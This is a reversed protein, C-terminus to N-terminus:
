RRQFRSAPGPQPSLPRRLGACVLPQKDRGFATHLRGLILRDPRAARDAKLAADLYVVIDQESLPPSFLFGQLETCASHRLFRRQEDTEVGEATVAIGLRCCLSAVAEIIAESDGAKGIQDVFSRDIKIKDVHLKQLHSLSSYGTGFDDLVIGVGAARLATLVQSAPSNVELIASETVEVQLRGPSIGARDLSAIIDGAMGGNRLQVPSVNVAVSLSPWDGIMALAKDLVFQGMKVILGTEEAIPIFQDPLLLGLRPNRWRVLAEVGVLQEGRASHVPQYHVEFGIGADLADRMEAEIRTHKRIRDDLDATFVRWRSRGTRKAEYLAVDARRQFEVPTMAGSPAFAVGISAGVFVQGELVDFALSAAALIRRCLHDVDVHTSEPLLIAFEDGGIRAVMDSGRVVGSLRVAFDRILGDGAQHGHGDNVEKFRDLDIYLLACGSRDGPGLQLIQEIRDNLQGRNPLGTLADHFALYHNRSEAARRATVDTVVAVLFDQGDLRILRKRTIVSITKGEANTIDEESEHDIGAAFVADDADHFVKVEAAPFLDTDPRSLLVDRPHGFLACASANLLVIQHNRDKVFVANPIVDFIPQLDQLGNIATM